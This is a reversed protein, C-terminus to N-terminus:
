ALAEDFAEDFAEVLAVAEFSDLEELVVVDPLSLM